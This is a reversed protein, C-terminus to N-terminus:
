LIYSGFVFQTAAMSEGGVITTAPGLCQITAEVPEVIAHRPTRAWRRVGYEGGLDSPLLTIIHFLASETLTNSPFPRGKNAASDNNKLEAEGLDGSLDHDATVYHVKELSLHNDLKHNGRLDSSSEGCRDSGWRDWITVGDDDVYTELRACGTEATVLETFRVGNSSRRRIKRATLLYCKSKWTSLSQLDLSLEDLFPVQAQALIPALILLVTTVTTRVTTMM